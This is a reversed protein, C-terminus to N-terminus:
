RISAWRVCRRRSAPRPSSRASSIPWGRLAATWSRCRAATRRSMCCTTISTNSPYSRATAPVAGLKENVKGAANKGRQGLAKVRGVDMKINGKINQVGLVKNRMARFPAFIFDIYRFFM